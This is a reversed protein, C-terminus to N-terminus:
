STVLRTMLVQIYFFKLYLQLVVGPALNAQVRGHVAQNHLTPVHTGAVAAGTLDVVTRHTTLMDATNNADAVGNEMLHVKHNIRCHEYYSNRTGEKRDNRLGVFLNQFCKPVMGALILISEIKPQHLNLILITGLFIKFRFQIHLM